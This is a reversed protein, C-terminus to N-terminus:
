DGSDESSSDSATVDKFDSQKVLTERERSRDAIPSKSRARKQARGKMFDPKSQVANFIWNGKCVRQGIEIFERLNDYDQRKRM